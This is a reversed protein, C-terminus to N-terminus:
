APAQPRRTLNRHGARTALELRYASLAELDSSSVVRWYVARGPIREMRRPLNLQRLLVVVRGPSLGLCEAAAPVTYLKEIM